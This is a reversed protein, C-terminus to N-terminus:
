PSPNLLEPISPSLQRSLHRVKEVIQNIYNLAENCDEQGPSDAAALQRGLGRLQMKLITLSQGLDDHLELSIRKRENEQSSLLQTTLYQPREGDGM